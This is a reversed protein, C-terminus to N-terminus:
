LFAAALLTGPNLVANEPESFWNVESLGRVSRAEENEM